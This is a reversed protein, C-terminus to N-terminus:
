STTPPCIRACDKASRPFLRLFPVCGARAKPIPYVPTPPACFLSVTTHTHSSPIAAAFALHSLDRQLDRQAESAREPTGSQSSHVGSAGKAYITSLTSLSLMSKRQRRCVVEGPMVAGHCRNMLNQMQIARCCVIKIFSAWSM